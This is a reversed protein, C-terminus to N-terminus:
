LFDIPLRDVLYTPPWQWWATYTFPQAWNSIPLTSHPWSPRAFYEQSWLPCFSIGEGIIMLTALTIARRM